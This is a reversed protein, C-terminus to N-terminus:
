APVNDTSEAYDAFKQSYLSKAETEIQTYFGEASAVASALSEGENRQIQVEVEAIDQTGLLSTETTVGFEPHVTLLEPIVSPGVRIVGSQLRGGPTVNGVSISDSVDVNANKVDSIDVHYVCRMSGAQIGSESQNPISTELIHIRSM